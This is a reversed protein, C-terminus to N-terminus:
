AVLGLQRRDVGECCVANTREKVRDMLRAVRANPNALARRGINTTVVFPTRSDYFAGVLEEIRALRYDSDYECGFDDLVVLSAQALSAVEMEFTGEGRSQAGLVMATNTFRPSWGADLLANCVCAAAWTKGVGRAGFLLLGQGAARKAEFDAVYGECRRRMEPPTYEDMRAFTAQAWNGMGRKFCLRARAERSEAPADARADPKGVVPFEIGNPYHVTAGDGTGRVGYQRRASADLKAQVEALQEPDTLWAPLGEIFPSPATESAGTECVAAGANGDNANV